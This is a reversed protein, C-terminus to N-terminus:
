VKRVTAILGVGGRWWSLDFPNASNARDAPICTLGCLVEAGSALSSLDDREHRPSAIFYECSVGEYVLPTELQLLAAEHGGVDPDPGIRLLTSMFPGAGNITVFDWPDSVLIAVRSGIIGIRDSV